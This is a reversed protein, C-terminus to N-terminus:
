DKKGGSNCSIVLVSLAIAATKGLNMKKLLNTTTNM